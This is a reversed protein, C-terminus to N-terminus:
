HCSHIDHRNGDLGDETFGLSPRRSHVEGISAGHHESAIIFSGEHQGGIKAIKGGIARRESGGFARKVDLPLAGLHRAAADRDVRHGRMEM